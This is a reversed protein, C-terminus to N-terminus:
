KLSFIFDDPDNIYIDSNTIRSNIYGRFRNNEVDDIMFLLNSKGIIYESFERGSNWNNIDSDFVISTIKKNTWSEISEFSMEKILIRYPRLEDFEWFM